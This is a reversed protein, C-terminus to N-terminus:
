YRKNHRQYYYAHGKPNNRVCRRPHTAIISKVITSGMAQMGVYITFLISSCLLPNQSVAASWFPAQVYRHMESCICYFVGNQCLRQM